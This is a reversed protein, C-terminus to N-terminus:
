VSLELNRKRLYLCAGWVLALQLAIPLLTAVIKLLTIVLAVKELTVAAGVMGVLNKEVDRLMWLAIGSLAAVFLMKQFSDSLNIGFRESEHLSRRLDSLKAVSSDNLVSTHPVTVRVKMIDVVAPPVDISIDNPTIQSLRIEIKEHAVLRRWDFDLTLLLFLFTAQFAVIAILEDGLLQLAAICAVTSAVLSCIFRWDKM